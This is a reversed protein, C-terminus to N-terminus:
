PYIQNLVLCAMSQSPSSHLFKRCNVPNKPTAIKKKKREEKNERKSIMRVLWFKEADSWWTDQLNMTVSSKM